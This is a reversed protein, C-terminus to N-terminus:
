AKNLPNTISGSEDGASKKKSKMVYYGIGGFILVAGFITFVTILAISGTSLKNSKSSDSNTDFSSIDIHAIRTVWNYRGSVAIYQQSYWFTSRDVPDLQMCSYDGWRNYTNNQFGTGAVISQENSNFTGLKDGSFRYAYRVGTYLETSSVSYGLVIAGDDNMAISGMWRNTDDPNQTGQQYLYPIGDNNTRVEYWSMTVQNDNGLPQRVTHTVLISEHTSFANYPVRYMIRDALADLPEGAPQQVCSSYGNDCPVYFSDIALEYPTPSIFKDTFSMKWVWLTKQGNFIDVSAAYNYGTVGDPPLKISDISAAFVIGYYEDFDVCFFNAELGNLMATRNYACIQAFPIFTSNDTALVRRDFEGEEEEPDFDSYMAISMYYADPWVSLKGYDPFIMEGDTTLGEFSYYNYEGFIDSTKSIAFCQFYPGTDSDLWAFESFVWREALQDWAV